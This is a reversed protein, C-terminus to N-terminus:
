SIKEKRQAIRSHAIELVDELTMNRRQTTDHKLPFDTRAHAGRSETRLHAFIAILM